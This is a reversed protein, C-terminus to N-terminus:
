KEILEVMYGDPDFVYSFRYGSSGCLPIDIETGADVVKQYAEDINDYLLAVHSSWFDEHKVKGEMRRQEINFFQFLEVCELGDEAALLVIRMKSEEDRTLSKAPIVGFDKSVRLGLVNCYFDISRDMDIVCISTHGTYAAM